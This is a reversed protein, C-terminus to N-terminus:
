LHKQELADVQAALLITQSGIIVDFQLSKIEYGSQSNDQTTAGHAWCCRQTRM